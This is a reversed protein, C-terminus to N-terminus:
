YTARFGRKGGNCRLFARGDTKRLADPFVSLWAAKVEALKPEEGACFCYVGYAKMEVRGADAM